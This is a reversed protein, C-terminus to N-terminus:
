ITPNLAYNHAHKASVPAVTAGAGALSEARRSASFYTRAWLFGAPHGDRTKVLFVRAGAAGRPANFFQLSM